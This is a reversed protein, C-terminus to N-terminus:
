FQICVRHELKNTMVFVASVIFTGSKLSNDKMVVTTCNIFLTLKRRAAQIVYKLTIEIKIQHTYIQNNKACM